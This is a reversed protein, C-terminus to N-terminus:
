RLLKNPLTFAGAICVGLLGYGGIFSEVMILIKSYTNIPTIEGYGTTSLTVFSFYIYDFKSDVKSLSGPILKYLEAFFMGITLYLLFSGRIVQWRDLVDQTSLSEIVIRFCNGILYIGSCVVLIMQWLPKDLFVNFFSGTCVGFASLVFLQEKKSKDNSCKFNKIVSNGSIFALLLGSFIFIISRVHIGWLLVTTAFCFAIFHSSFSDAFFWSGM